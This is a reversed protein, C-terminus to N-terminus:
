YPYNHVGSPPMPKKVEAKGHTVFSTLLKNFFGWEGAVKIQSFEDSHLFTLSVLSHASVIILLFSHEAVNRWFLSDRRIMRQPRDALHYIINQLLHRRPKRLLVRVHPPWRSRRLSQKPGQQQLDEIRDAAFSHQDLLQLVVQQEPPKYPHLHVLRHPIVRHVALITLAQQIFLAGLRNELPHQLSGSRKHGIFMECHIPRQNLGPGAMLTEPRLVSCALGRPRSPVDVKTSLLSLVLSMFRAGIGIGSQPGLGSSALRLQAVHSMYQHFVAVSEQQLRKQRLGVASRLPIRRQQNGFAQRRSLSHGHSPVLGVVRLFEYPFEAPHVDRRLHRLVRGIAPTRHILPGRPM